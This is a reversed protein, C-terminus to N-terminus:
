KKSQLLKEIRDRAWNGFLVPKWDVGLKSAIDALFGTASGAIGGVAAGIPGSISSGIISGTAGGGIVGFLNIAKRGYKIFGMEKAVEHHYAIIADRDRESEDQLWDRFRHAKKRIKIIDELNIKDENILSRIDPFEVKEKLTEIIEGSKIHTHTSEYLKDGILVSMPQGLFLDCNLNAAALLLRNANAGGILPTADHFNVSKGALKSIHKFDINWHIKHETKDQSSIVKAVITPPKGLNRFTYLEDIFAQLTLTHRQANGLDLKANEVAKGFEDAKVEIVNGRIADYFRARHRAKMFCSEIEKNYLYRREFTNPQSQIPDQINWVSFVGEKNIATTLFAFDYFQITGDKILAIFDLYKDRDIFWHLMESFQVPNGVNILIRDYYILSEALLGIDIRNGRFRVDPSNYAWAEIPVLATKHDSM